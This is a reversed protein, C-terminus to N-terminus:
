GAIGAAGIPLAPAGAGGGFAGILGQFVGGLLDPSLGGPAGGAGIDAGPAGGAMMGGAGSLLQGVMPLAIPLIPALAVGLGPVLFNLGQVLLPAVFNAVLPNSLLGGVLQMGMGLPGALQGFMGMIGQMFDGGPPTTPPPAVPEAPPTRNEFEKPDLSIDTTAPTEVLEPYKKILDALVDPNLRLGEGVIVCNIDNISREPNNVADYIAPNKTKLDPFKKLDDYHKIVDGYTRSTNGMDVAVEHRSRPPAPSDNYGSRNERGSRPPAQPPRGGRALEVDPPPVSSPPAPPTGPTAPSTAMDYLDKLAIPNGAFINVAAAIGEKFAPPLTDKGTAADVVHAAANGVSMKDYMQLVGGIIGGTEFASGVSNIDEVAHQGLEGVARGAEQGAKGLLNVFADLPNQPKNNSVSSM